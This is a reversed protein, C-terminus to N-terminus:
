LAFVQPKEFGPLLPVAADFLYRSSVADGARMFYRAAGLQGDVISALLRGDPGLQSTLAEPIHEAGGDLLIVDYPAQSTHGETLPGTVVAVTDIGLHAFNAAATEALSPDEELAVVAAALHSLIAAAYGTSAGVLLVLDTPKVDAAQIMRALHRPVMVRRGPAVELREESYALSRVTKPLFLERPISGMAKQIRLDTVDSPRIQNEVMNERALSLDDM